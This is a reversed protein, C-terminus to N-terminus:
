GAIADGGGHQLGVTQIQVWCCDMSFDRVKEKVDSNMWM